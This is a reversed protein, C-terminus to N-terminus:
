PEEHSMFFAKSEMDFGIMRRAQSRTPTGASMTSHSISRSTSELVTTREAKAVFSHSSPPLSLM